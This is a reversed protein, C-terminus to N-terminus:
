AALRGAVRSVVKRSWRGGTPSPVGRDNLTEAIQSQSLGEALLPELAWRVREAGERARQRVVERGRRAGEAGIRGVDGVKVGRAKAAAMGARTRERISEREMEALGAMVALVMRGAASSTDIQESLSRVTIGRDAVDLVLGILHQMSRGLRDLKFVVVTDGPRLEALMADLAPRSTKAGSMTDVHWQEIGHPELARRQSDHDQHDTSVRLYAHITMTEGRAHTRLWSWNPALL